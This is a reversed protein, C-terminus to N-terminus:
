GWEENSTSRRLWFCASFRSQGYNHTRRQALRFMGSSFRQDKVADQPTAAYVNGNVTVKGTTGLLVENDYITFQEGAHQFNVVQLNAPHNLNVKYRHSVSADHENYGFIAFDNYRLAGEKMPEDLALVVKTFVLIALIRLLSLMAKPVLILINHELPRGIKTSKYLHISELTKLDEPIRYKKLVVVCEM